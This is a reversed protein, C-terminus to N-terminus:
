ARIKRVLDVAAKCNDRIQLWKKEAIAEWSAIWIGGVCAIIDAALYNGLNATTVGGTPMFKVGIHAYPAALAKILMVDYM